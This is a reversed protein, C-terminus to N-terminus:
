GRRRRRGGHGRVPRDADRAAREHHCAVGRGGLRDGRARRDRSRATLRPPTSPAPTGRPAESTLHADDDGGGEVYRGPAVCLRFGKTVKANVVVHPGTEDGTENKPKPEVGFVVVYFHLSYKRGGELTAPNSVCRQALLCEADDGLFTRRGRHTRM